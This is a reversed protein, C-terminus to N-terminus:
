ALKYQNCLHTVEIKWGFGTPTPSTAPTTPPQTPTVTTTTTPVLDDIDDVCGAGQGPKNREDATFNEFLEKTLPWCGDFM